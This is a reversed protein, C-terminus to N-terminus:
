SSPARRVAGCVNRYDQLEFSSRTPSPPRAPAAGANAVKHQEGVAHCRADSGPASAARPYLRHGGWAGLVSTSSRQAGQANHPLLKAAIHRKRATRRWRSRTTVLPSIPALFGASGCHSFSNSYLEGSLDTLPPRRIGGSRAAAGPQVAASRKAFSRGRSRWSLTHPWRSEAPRQARPRLRAHHHIDGDRPFEIRGLGYLSRGMRCNKAPTKLAFARAV